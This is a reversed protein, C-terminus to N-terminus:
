NEHNIAEIQKIKEDILEYLLKKLEPIHRGFKVTGFYLHLVLDLEATIYDALVYGNEELENITNKQHKGVIDRLKLEREEQNM